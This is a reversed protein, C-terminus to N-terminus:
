NEPINLKTFVTYMFEYYDSENTEPFLSEIKQPESNTKTQAKIYTTNEVALVFRSKNNTELYAYKKDKFIPTELKKWTEYNQYESFDIIQISLAKMDDTTSLAYEYSEKCNNIINQESEQIGNCFKNTVDTNYFMRYSNLTDGAAKKADLRPFQDQPYYIDLLVESISENTYGKVKLKEDIEKAVKTTEQDVKSKRQDEKSQCATLFILSGCLILSFIIKMVKKKVM